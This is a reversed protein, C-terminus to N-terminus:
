IQKQKINRNGSKQKNVQWLKKNLLFEELQGKTNNRKGYIKHFNRHCIECLTIGNDISFRLEPFQIFNNIHHANLQGGSIECKQCIFNDKEFISKRWIEYYMNQRIRRIEPTIGGQWNWHKEGRQSKGLNERWEKSFPLRKKGKWYHSSNESMKRKTEESTKMGKHAESLKRKVEETRPIGKNWSPRGKKALSIKKKTEESHPKNKNWPIQGKKFKM